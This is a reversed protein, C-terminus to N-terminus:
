ARLCWSVRADHTTQRPITIAAEDDTLEAKIIRRAQMAQGPDDQALYRVLISTDLGIM